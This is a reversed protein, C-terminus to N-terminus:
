QHKRKNVRNLANKFTLAGTRRQSIDRYIRQSIDRYISYRYLSSEYSQFSDAFKKAGRTRSALPYVPLSRSDVTMEVTIEVTIEVTTEVTMEVM